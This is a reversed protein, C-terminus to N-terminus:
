RTRVTTTEGIWGPVTYSQGDRLNLMFADDKKPYYASFTNIIKNAAEVNAESSDINKARIAKDVAAWYASRGGMDDSILRSGSAYLNAILLYPEGKTPDVSAANNYATRAAGYSNMGAHAHGLFIYARYKEKQDEVGAVADTLYKVAESYKEKAICMQGMRLATSATPEIRYLNETARFFLDQDTCDKKMMIGTIKKLLQVNEPDAEFKKTYISVLQDCSAFPSFAAEVNAIFKKIVAAKSTDTEALLEKELLESAIDYNDIVLSSDAYGNVVYRVTAEFFKYVYNADLTTGGKEVAQAYIPYYDKLGANKRLMELDYAKRALVEGEEGFYQIRMDYLSMLEDILSDRQEINKAKTAENIKSKLINAGHIYNNKHRAPCVKMLEKWPTYAAVYNKQKYFEFYLSYNLVCAASDEPTAGWKQATAPLAFATMVVALLFIRNKKM